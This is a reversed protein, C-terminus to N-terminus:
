VQILHTKFEHTGSGVEIQKHDPLVIKAQSNAPITVKISFQNEVIEWFIRIEGYPSNVTLRCSTLGGGPKPEITFKKYGGNIYDPKLGAVTKYLWDGVAGYAYHNFSVMNGESHVEGNELLADWREWITTAGRNVPYLWSPNKENLLLDYAEKLRNNDSLAFTIYPTGLFGTSLCGNNEKIKDALQEAAKEVAEDPLLRFYLACVYLSQFDGSLKGDEKLFEDCFAKKIKEFLKLYKSHDEKKGLIAAVESLLRTSNAFYATALYKGKEKWKPATEFPALWDGYQFGTTWLYKRTQNESTIQCSERKEKEVWKKMSEYQTELQQKNGYALYNAYPVLIAADGWGAVATKDMNNIRSDPVTLPMAGDKGQELRVDTLWKKLFLSADMNFVATSAFVALDGTWGLREDRQPCDTPIEFFNSKEGWLINKQLQNIKEDSCSFSGTIEMTSYVVIGTIDIIEDPRLGKIEAFRFGMYTFYPEYTEEEGGHSLYTLTAKASRLNATYLENNQDLVEAHRIVVEKRELTKMTLKIWGSFNQGFDVIVSDDTRKIERIPKREEQKNVTTGFHPVLKSKSSIEVQKVPQFLLEDLNNRNSDYIEGDYFESFLIPGDETCTWSRDTIFREKTQDSFNMSIEAILATEDGYFNNKGAFRGCYWGNALYAIVTNSGKKLLNSIEYTQYQIYQHYPSYGPTFYDKGVREGNIYFTYLGLASAIIYAKIVEKNIFIEKRFVTVPKSGNLPNKYGSSIWKAKWPELFHSTRFTKMASIATENYNDSIRILYSYENDPLLQTGDYLINISQNSHVTKSDWVTEGNSFVTIRYTRQMVSHHSSQLKWSFQPTKTALSINQTQGECRIDVIDLM